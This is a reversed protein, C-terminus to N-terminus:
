DKGMKDKQYDIKIITYLDWLGIFLIFAPILAWLKELSHLMLLCVPTSVIGVLACCFALVRTGTNIFLIDEDKIKTM